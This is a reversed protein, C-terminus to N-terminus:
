KSLSLNCIDYCKENKEVDCIDGCITLPAFGSKDHISASKIAMM